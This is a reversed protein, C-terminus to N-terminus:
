AVADKNSISTSSEILHSYLHQELDKRQEQIQEGGSLAGIVLLIQLDQQQAALETDKLAFVGAWRTNRAPVLGNKGDEGKAELLRHLM